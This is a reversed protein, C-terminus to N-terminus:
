LVREHLMIGCSGIHEVVRVEAALVQMRSARGILWLLLVAVSLRMVQIRMRGRRLGRTESLGKADIHRCLEVVPLSRSLFTRVHVLVKTCRDLARVRLCGNLTMWCWISACVRSLHHMVLSLRGWHLEFGLRRRDDLSM